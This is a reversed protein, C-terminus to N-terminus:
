APPQAADHRYPDDLGLKGLIEVELREMLAADGDREHDYGLLHLVGHVILHTVHDVMPKCAAEAEAHCTDYSIAIDGLELMKDFGPTVPLPIEGDQAAGREEAPWSLVNTPTPKDRFDANLTAIHADDCALVTVEAVSAELSLHALTTTIVRPCLAELDLDAWRPDEEIVDLSQM